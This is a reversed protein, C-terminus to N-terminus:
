GLPNDELASEPAIRLLNAVFLGVPLTQLRLLLFQNGFDFDLGCM